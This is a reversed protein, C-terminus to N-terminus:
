GTGSIACFGTRPKSLQVNNMVSIAGIEAGYRAASGTIWQSGTQVTLASLGSGHRTFARFGTGGPAPCVQGRTDGQTVARARVELASSAAVGTLSSTAYAIETNGVHAVEESSYPWVGNPAAKM